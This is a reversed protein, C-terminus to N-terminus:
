SPQTIFPLPGGTVVVAPAPFSPPGSSACEACIRVPFSVTGDPVMGPDCGYQAGVLLVAREEPMGLAGLGVLVWEADGEFGLATDTGRRCVVCAGFQDGSPVPSPADAV